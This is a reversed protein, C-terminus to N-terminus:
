KEFLATHSFFIKPRDILRFGVKQAAEITKKFANSTVHIKPEALLLKGSSHLISYLQQFLHSEDPTEHVMWFALAFDVKENVGIDNEDCLITSICHDVDEKQARKILTDLMQQQIDVSIIKGTEGVIKAMGISFYGMGCGIDVATMGKDLYPAFVKETDHFLRRLPNDFTYAIWWPCVHRGM